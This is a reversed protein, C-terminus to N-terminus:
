WRSRQADIIELAVLNKTPVGCKPCSKQAEELDVIEERAPLEDLARRGHGRKGKQQGRPRGRAGPSSSGTRRGKAQESKRGWLQSELERVRARLSLNESKLQKERKVAAGHQAKWYAAAWRLGIYKEKAVLVRKTSGGGTLGGSESKATASLQM